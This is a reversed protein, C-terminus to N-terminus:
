APGCCGGSNWSSQYGKPSAVVIGNEPASKWLGSTQGYYTPYDGLGHINILGPRLGKGRKPENLLFWRQNGDPDTSSVTVNKDWTMVPGNLDERNPGASGYEMWHYDEGEAAACNAFLSLIGINVFKM